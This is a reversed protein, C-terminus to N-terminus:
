KNIIIKGSKTFESVTVSYLYVGSKVNRTDWIKQGTKGELNFVAILKGTVDTIKVLGSGEYPLMYNFAVWDKAPNPKTTVDLGYVKALDDPNIIESSKYGTSDSVSLCNCYHYGYAFELIGKAQVGATGNSNEAISVINTIETSDLDFVTRGENALNIQLNILDMYYAHETLENESYNYLDPMINALALADEYNNQELYTAIIQEDARKGGANDFWNRLESFDIISDNLASRIMDYAARTKIQNYHALQQELVTKYTTGNAVQRLINIMYDPLPNEKNELYQILEKKKLEDPNAAMIEFIVSEPLVNTKDAAAKLVEMSLHPSKGLLEARLEWMEDPWATEVDSLTADTNGGDKLNDYLAKVNNYNALNDAYDQEAQQKEEPSLVTKIGIGGGGGGGYHSPCNNNFNKPKDTVYFEKDDDPNENACTMCFYYGVLNDGGNYFHWTVGSSSFKNGTVKQDSGQKSQIGSKINDPDNDPEVYFDSYNGFNDNCFYALGHKFDAPLIFNRGVAYNGYSLGEFTNKYVEDTSQTEAIRIGTYIGQPAGTYKYFENEEVAFGTCENMDIGYSAANGGCIAQAGANDNYGIHFESFLVALNNVVSAYVGTANDTFLTHEINFTSTKDGGASAWVATNFGTFSSRDMDSCPDDGSVCRGLVSFGADYAAIGDNWDSVGQDTQLLFDCGHFDFGWVHALDIHKFFKNDIEPDYLYNNDVRFACNTIKSANGMVVTNGEVTVINNYYLAHLSKSNNVFWSSNGIFIGGTKNYDINGNEDTAALLVATAADEITASQLSLKGQALPHGEYVMQNDNPNGWVEIGKWQQRPNCNLSTLTSHDVTLVCGPEIIIGAEPGFEYTSNNITVVPKHGTNPDPMIHIGKEFKYNTEPYNANPLIMDQTIVWYDTEFDYINEEIEFTGAISYGNVDVITYSYVGSGLNDATFAQLAEDWDFDASPESTITYPATGGNVTIVVQGDTAGPCNIGLTTVDVDLPNAETEPLIYYREADGYKRYTLVTKEEPFTYVAAEFNESGPTLRGLNTGDNSVAYVKGDPATQLFTKNYNGTGSVTTFVPSNINSYDVKVIGTNVCSAYLVFDSVPSFEIGGIRGMNLNYKHVEPTGGNLVVLVLEDEPNASNGHIWAIHTEEDETIKLELNYADFDSETLGGELEEVIILEDTVNESTITWRRLVSPDEPVVPNGLSAAYIYKPSQSKPTIAFGVYGENNIGGRLLNHAGPEQGAEIENYCFHNDLDRTSLNTGTYFSYYMGSTEPKPIIQFEPHMNPQADTVWQTVGGGTICFYEGIVYFETNFNVDYGGASFHHNNEESSPIPVPTLLEDTIVGNEHFTLETVIPNSGDQSYAAPIVWKGLTQQAIASQYLLVGTFVIFLFSLLQKKM